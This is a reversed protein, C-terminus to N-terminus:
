SEISFGNSSAGPQRVVTEKWKWNSDLQFVIPFQEPNGWLPKAENEILIQNFILWKKAEKKAAYEYYANASM